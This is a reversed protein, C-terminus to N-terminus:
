GEFVLKANEGERESEENSANKGPGQWYEGHTPTVKLMTLEPDDLGGPFWVRLDEQWFRKMLNKDDSLLARGSVNVFLDREIANYALHVSPEHAIHQVKQSSKSTFFYLDGDFEVGQTAMPRGVLGDGSNTTLSAIPIGKIVQALKKGAQDGRITKTEAM